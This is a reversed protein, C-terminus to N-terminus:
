ERQSAPAAREAHPEDLPTGTAQTQAAAEALFATLEEDTLEKPRRPLTDDLRQAFRGYQRHLGAIM